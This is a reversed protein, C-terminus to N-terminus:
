LRSMRETHCPCSCATDACYAGNGGARCAACPVPCHTCPVERGGVVMAHTDRCVACVVSGGGPALGVAQRARENAETAVVAADSLCAELGARWAELAEIRKLLAPACSHVGWSLARLPDLAAGCVGCTITGAPIM